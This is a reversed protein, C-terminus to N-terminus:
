EKIEPVPNYARLLLRFSAAATAVAVFGLIATVDM